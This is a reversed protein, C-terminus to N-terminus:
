VNKEHKEIAIFVNLTNIGYSSNLVSYNENFCSPLYKGSTKEEAECYIRLDQNGLSFNKENILNFSLFTNEKDIELCNLVKQENFNNLSIVNNETICEICRKALTSAELPRIDYPRSFKWWVVGVIVGIVLVIMLFRYIFIVPYESQAKKSLM